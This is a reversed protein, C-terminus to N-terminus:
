RWLMNTERRSKAFRRRAASGAANEDVTNMPQSFHISM